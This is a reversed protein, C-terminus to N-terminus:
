ESRDVATELPWIETWDRNNDEELIWEAWHYKAALLEVHGDRGDLLYHNCNERYFEDLSALWVSSEAIYFGSDPCVGTTIWKQHRWELYLSIDDDYDDIIEFGYDPPSQSDGHPTARAFFALEFVLEIRRLDTLGDSNLRGAGLVVRCKPSVDTEEHILTIGSSTPSIAWPVECNRLRTLMSLM